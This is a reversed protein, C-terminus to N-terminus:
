TIVEGAKKKATGMGAPAIHRQYTVLCRRHWLRNQEGFVSIVLGTWWHFTEGCGVCMGPTDRIM